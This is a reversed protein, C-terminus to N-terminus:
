GLICSVLAKTNFSSKSMDSALRGFLENHTIMSEVLLVPWRSEFRIKFEAM